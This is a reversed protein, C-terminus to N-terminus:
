VKLLEDAHVKESFDKNLLGLKRMEDKDM